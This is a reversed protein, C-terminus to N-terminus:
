WCVKLETNAVILGASAAKASSVGLPTASIVPATETLGYGVFLMVGYTLLLAATRVQRGQFVNGVVVTVGKNREGEYLILWM